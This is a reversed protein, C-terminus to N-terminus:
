QSLFSLLFFSLLDNVADFMCCSVSWLNFCFGSFRQPVSYVWATHHSPQDWRWSPTPSTAPATWSLCTAVRWSRRRWSGRCPASESGVQFFLVCAHTLRSRWCAPIFIHLHQLCTLLPVHDRCTTRVAAPSDCCRRPASWDAWWRYSDVREAGLRSM